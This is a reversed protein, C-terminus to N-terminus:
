LEEVGGVLAKAANLGVIRGVRPGVSAIDRYLMRLIHPSLVRSAKFNLQDGTM